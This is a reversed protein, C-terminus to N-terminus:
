FELKSIKERFDKNCIICKLKIAKTPKVKFDKQSLFWNLVPSHKRTIHNFKFISQPYDNVESRNMLDDIIDQHTSRETNESASAISSTTPKSKDRTTSNSASSQTNNKNKNAKTKSKTDTQNSKSSKKKKINDELEEEEEDETTEHSRNVERTRHSTVFKKEPQHSIQNM